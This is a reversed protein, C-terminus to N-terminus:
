AFDNREAKIGHQRCGARLAFFGAIYKVNYVDIYYSLIYSSLNFRLIMM